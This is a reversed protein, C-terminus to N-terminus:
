SWPWETGSLHVTFQSFDIRSRGPHGTCPHHSWAGKGTQRFCAAANFPNFCPTLLGDVFAAHQMLVINIQQQITIKNFHIWTTQTPSSKWQWCCVTITSRMRIMTNILWLNISNIGKTVTGNWVIQYASCSSLTKFSLTLGCKQLITIERGWVFGHKSSFECKEEM